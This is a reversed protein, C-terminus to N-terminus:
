FDALIKCPESIMRNQKLDRRVEEWLFDVSIVVQFSSKM